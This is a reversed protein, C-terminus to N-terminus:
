SPKRIQISRWARAALQQSPGRANPAFRQALRLWRWAHPLAIISSRAVQRCRYYMTQQVHCVISHVHEDASNRVHGCCLSFTAALRRASAHTPTVGAVYWKSLEVLHDSNVDPLYSKAYERLALGAFYCQRESSTSTISQTTCRKHCLIEPHNGIRGHHALRTWLDFDQAVPSESRYGGCFRAIDRRFVAGPHPFPNFFLMAWRAAQDSVVNLTPRLWRGDEDILDFGCGLLVQDHNAQLFEWQKELRQPLALDDADIRAIWPSRAMTIGTNLADVLGAHATRVYRVRPDQISRVYNPTEDTSGDDVVILEFKDLTQRLVSEVADKLYPMGNYVPLVVSYILDNM